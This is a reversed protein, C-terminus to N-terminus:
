YFEVNDKFDRRGYLWQSSRDLGKDIKFMQKWCCSSLIWVELNGNSRRGSMKMFFIQFDKEM